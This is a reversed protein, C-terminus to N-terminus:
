LGQSALYDRSMKADELTSREVSLDQEVVVWQAGADVSAALISPMDQSGFGVPKFMFGERPANYAKQGSYTFDKLHVVPARGTYKRVYAAPDLGAFNVWCTDVETKLLDDCVNAYLYDLGYSGDDMPIFEFEHNHYLLQIGQAKCEAGIERVKEVTQAFAPSGPRAENDLYPIAIYSCGVTAYKAITGKMDEVLEAYPVHASVPILGADAVLKKVEAPDMGYLGALEVGDYGFEKIKALTGAFDKEAEGRVSYVQLAVLMKGM